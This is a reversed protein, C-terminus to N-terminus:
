HSPAPIGVAFGAHVADFSGVGGPVPAGNPPPHACIVTPWHEPAASPLAPACYPRLQDYPFTPPVWVPVVQVGVPRAALERVQERLEALERKLKRIESANSM